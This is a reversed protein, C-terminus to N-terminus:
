RPEGLVVVRHSARTLATYVLRYFLTLDRQKARLLDNLDVFVVRHTSGQLRHTTSAWAPRLDAFLNETDFYERWRARRTRETEPTDHIRHQATASRATRKLGRLVALADETVRPVFARKRIGFAQWSVHWGDVGGPGAASPSVHTVRVEENNALLDTSGHSALIDGVVPARPDTCDPHLCQRVVENWHHVAANTFCAIRADAGSSFAEEIEARFDEASVVAVGAGDSGLTTRIEPVTTSQGTILDRVQTAISIIPSGAAQRHITELRVCPVQDFLEPDDGVPPLQAHDGVFLVAARADEAETKIIELLEVDIMSAEDVVLFGDRPIRAERVKKLYREGTEEDVRLGLGLASHVTMVDTLGSKALVAVAKHTSATVLVDHGESGLTSVIAKLTYSKGTGASGTLAQLSGPESYRAHDTCTKFAKAQDPSLTSLDFGIERKQIVFM